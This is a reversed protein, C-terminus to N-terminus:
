SRALVRTALPVIVSVVILGVMWLFQRAIKRELREFHAELSTLRYNIQEYAGDLRGMQTELHGMRADLTNAAM